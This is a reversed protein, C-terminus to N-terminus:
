KKKKRSEGYGYGYGYKGYGYKGYNGKSTDVDTLVLGLIKGSATEIARLSSDLEDVTTKNERVVLIYGAAAPALSLSDFVVGLPSTDVIVFDYYYAQKKLFYNMIRSGLMESPRQTSPGAPLFDVGPAVNRM